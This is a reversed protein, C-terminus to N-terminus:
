RRNAALEGAAVKGLTFIPRFPRNHSCRSTLRVTRPWHWVLFVLMTM